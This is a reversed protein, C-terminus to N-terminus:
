KKSRGILQNIKIQSGPQGCPATRDGHSGPAPGFDNIFINPLTSVRLEELNPAWELASWDLASDNSSLFATACDTQYGGHMALRYRAAISILAVSCKINGSGLNM